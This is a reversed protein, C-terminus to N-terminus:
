RPCPPQPQQPTGFAEGSFYHRRFAEYLKKHDASQTAISLLKKENGLGSAWIRHDDSCDYHWDHRDLMNWYDKLSIKGKKSM